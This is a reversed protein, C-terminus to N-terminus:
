VVQADVGPTPAQGGGALQTQYLQRYLPCRELLDAHAGVDLIRGADLVVIRDAALVTSFRHAILLTTRGRVFEAMAQTIRRESDADVQSMAEDFILIAPDRLIARAISIRQRQGGSLTAGHEGVMTEYGDPLDRVFEDVFAKRAADLIQEPHPRRLGYAINEAITAHFLVTEQTVLGIQRRLSRLSHRSIDRGDILVTGATPDILRPVLSVMTTKGSGNPGVIAVTEGARVSLQLEKLAHEAANPYRFSVDRFEISDSHVPLAPANPVRKEQPLDQLQFIRTAAAEARQFRTAVKALKRVPDFMAALCAMLAVFRDGTMGHLDNFVWYGALAAAGLAAFMGMAEVAPGTASDIRAMRRQQKLLARNTQLFRRRESAEMTYAKVVRIGSLTGELVGLMTSWSELARRSARRMRRGLRRILWFSPPGAVMAMLTLEWSISLAIAVSAVAKAPEVLTKGFLTVQGRGLEATDQVFRSMTDSVGKESFFTTPLRLVAGYNETRIDLIARFVATQVLYEQVFRLLDRAVTIAFCVALLYLLIRLKDPDSEPPKIHRAIWGLMRASAGVRGPRFTVTEVRNDEGTPDYVRLKLPGTGVALRRILEKAAVSRGADGAAPTDLGIIWQKRKLGAERAAGKPRIRGIQLVESVGSLEPGGVQRVRAPVSIADLTAGVKDQAISVWAWGHLGEPSILIKVGPLIMALGGGWLAAILLVCVSGVALRGRYPWLYKLSRRFNPM